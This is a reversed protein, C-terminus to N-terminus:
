SVASDFEIRDIVKVEANEPCYISLTESHQNVTGWERTIVWYPMEESMENSPSVAFSWHGSYFAHIFLGQEEAPSTIELTGVYAGHKLKPHSAVNFENGEGKIGKCCIMRDSAGWFTAMKCKPNVDNNESKSKFFM